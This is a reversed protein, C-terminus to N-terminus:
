VDLQATVNSTDTNPTHATNQRSSSAHAATMCSNNIDQNISICCHKHCVVCSYAGGALNIFTSDYLGDNAGLKRINLDRLHSKVSIPQLFAHGCVPLHPLHSVAQM